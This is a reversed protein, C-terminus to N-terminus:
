RAAALVLYQTGASRLGPVGMDGLWQLGRHVTVSARAPLLEHGLITFPGFGFTQSRLVRFDLESLLANLEGPSQRTSLAPPQAPEARRRILRRAAARIGRLGPTYRPDLLVTLRQSSDCSVLLHGEPAAGRVMEALVDCPSAVWPLLGLAVVLDFGGPAVPLREAAAQMVTVSSRLGARVLNQCARELMNTATDVATVRMGRRALEIAFLGTGSGVELVRSGAPLGLENIWALALSRRLQHIVSFVDHREYYADWNAADAEFFETVPARQLPRM